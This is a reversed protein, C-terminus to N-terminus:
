SEVVPRAATLASGGADTEAPAGTSADADAAGASVADAAGLGDATALSDAMRSEPTTGDRGTVVAFGSGRGVVVAFGGFGPRVRSSSSMLYSSMSCRRYMDGRM